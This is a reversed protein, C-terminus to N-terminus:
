KGFTQLFSYVAPFLLVIFLSPFILFVLPFMMKVPAKQAREEARARRRKRMEIALNRMITGISVGLTEGQLVSRVFSRMSPTQARDLMNSLAEQISLGLNNEQLTLKLEDGLPGEIRGAATQMASTFGLGAEVTVVLLDILEPLRREIEDLRGQARRHIVSSPIIWGAAGGMVTTIVVFAPSWGAAVGVWLVLAPIAVAAMARYGVFTAPTLEYVGAAILERRIPEEELSSVRAFLAQGIRASWGELVV